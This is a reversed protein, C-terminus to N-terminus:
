NLLVLRGAPAKKNSERMRPLFEGLLHGHRNCRGKRDQGFYIGEVAATQHKSDLNRSKLIPAVKAKM